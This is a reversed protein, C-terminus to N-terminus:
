ARKEDAAVAVPEALTAELVKDPERVFKYGDRVDDPLLQGVLLRDMVQGVRAVNRGGSKEVELSKILDSAAVKDLTEGTLAVVETASLWVGQRKTPTKPLATIGKPRLKQLLWQRQRDALTRPTAQIVPNGM